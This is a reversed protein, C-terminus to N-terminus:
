LTRPRRLHNPRPKTQQQRWNLL